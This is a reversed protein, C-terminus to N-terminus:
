LSSRILIGYSKKRSRILQCQLRHCFQEFNRKISYFAKRTPEEMQAHLGHEHSYNFHSEFGLEIQPILFQILYEVHSTNASHCFKTEM